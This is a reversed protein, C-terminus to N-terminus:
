IGAVVGTKQAPRAKRILSTPVRFVQILKSLYVGKDSENAWPLSGQFLDIWGDPMTPLGTLDLSEKPIVWAKLCKAPSNRGIRFEYTNLPYYDGSETPQLYRPLWAVSGRLSSPSSTQGILRFTTGHISELAENKIANTM